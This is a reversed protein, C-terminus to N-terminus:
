GLIQRYVRWSFHLGHQLCFFGLRSLYGVLPSIDHPLIPSSINVVPQHNLFWLQNTTQFWPIKHSQMWNPIIM